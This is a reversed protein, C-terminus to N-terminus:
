RKGKAQKELERWNKARDVADKADAYAKKEAEIVKERKAVNSRLREAEGRLAKAMDENEEAEAQATLDKAHENRMLKEAELKAIKDNRRKLMWVGIAILVVIMAGLIWKWYKKTTSEAKNVLSNLTMAGVM